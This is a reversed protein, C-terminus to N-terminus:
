TSKFVLLTYFTHYPYLPVKTGADTVAMSQNILLRRRLTSYIVRIHIKKKRSLIVTIRGPVSYYLTQQVHVTAYTTRRATNCLICLILACILINRDAASVQFICGLGEVSESSRDSLQLVTSKLLVCRWTKIEFDWNLFACVEDQYM